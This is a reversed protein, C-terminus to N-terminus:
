QTEGEGDPDALKQQVNQEAEAPGRARRHRAGGMVSGDGQVRGGVQHVRDAGQRTAPHPHCVGQSGEDGDGGQVAALLREPRQELLRRDTEDRDQDFAESRRLDSRIRRRHARSEAPDENRGIEAYQEGTHEAATRGQAGQCRSARVKEGTRESGSASYGARSGSLRQAASGSLRQAASGSLRQGASGSVGPGFSETRGRHPRRRRRM